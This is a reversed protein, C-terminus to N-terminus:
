GTVDLPCLHSFLWLNCVHSIVFTITHFIFLSMKKKEIQLQQFCLCHHVDETIVVLQAALDGLADQLVKDVTQGCVAAVDLVEVEKM